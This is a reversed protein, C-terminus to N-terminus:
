GVACWDPRGALFSYIVVEDYKIWTEIAEGLAGPQNAHDRFLERLDHGGYRTNLNELLDFISNTLQAHHSGAQIGWSDPPPSGRRRRTLSSNSYPEYRTGQRAMVPEKGM